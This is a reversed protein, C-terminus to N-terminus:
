LVMIIIDIMTLVFTKVQVFLKEVVDVLHEWKQKRIRLKGLLTDM